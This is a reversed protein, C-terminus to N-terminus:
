DRAEPRLYERLLRILEARSATQSVTMMKRIRYKVTSVTVFCRESIAEYSAGQLLHAIVERDLKDCENLLRELRLMDALEGDQYFNDESDPIVPLEPLARERAIAGGRAFPFSLEWRISVVIHSLYPNKKLNELLMVAARGYESFNLKVSHIYAKYFESLNTEACGIFLLRELQAPATRLLNRVLSIAAFDNACVVADYREVNTQFRAFCRAFSGDNAYVHAQCDRRMAANFGHLRSADSVAHPNVGYLAIKERGASRLAEVLHRMSGIVDSCITSYTMAFDHYTQNSLLIPYINERCSAELVARIWENSTGVVFIFGSGSSIEAFSSVCRFAIRKLKLESVLGDVLNQCWVSHAFTSEVLILIM